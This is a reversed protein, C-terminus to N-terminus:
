EVIEIEGSEATTKRHKKAEIEEERKRKKAEKTGINRAMKLRCGVNGGEYYFSTRGNALLNFEVIEDNFIRPYHEYEVIGSPVGKMRLHHGISGQTGILEDAYIKKAIFWSERAGKVWEGKKYTRPTDFDIHFQGMESGMIEWGYKKKFADVLERLLDQRIHMSDTDTYFIGPSYQPYQEELDEGLAMVRGIIRRAMALVNSGFINFSHSMDRCYVTATIKDGECLEFSHLRYMNAKFWKKWYNYEEWRGTNKNFRKKMIDLTIKMKDSAKLVSKGYISNMMIKAVNQIPHEVGKGHNAKRFEFLNKISDRVEFHRPGEWVIAMDWKFEADQFDVLNYLDIANVWTDVEGCYNKYENLGTKKDKICLLPFHRAKKTYLWTLHICGDTYPKKEKNEDDEPACFDRLFDKHDREGNLFRPIGESVWLLYMASPYLSVADYDQLYDDLGKAEYHWKENDRCMVRGGRITQQILYRLMAKPFVVKHKSIWGDETKDFLVTKLFYDYSLSSATRYRLLDQSFPPNGHIGECGEAKMLNKMNNMIGVLIRVDQCCYYEGYIMWNVFYKETTITTEERIAQDGEIREEVQHETKVQKVGFESEYVDFGDSRTFIKRGNKRLDEMITEAFAEYNPDDRFYELEVISDGGQSYKAFEDSLFSYTYSKYPFAEKRITKKEEETLYSNGASKLTSQFIPYADWFDFFVKQGGYRYFGTCSYLRGEKEIKDVDHLYPLIFTLDYKLNFFYIRAAPSKRSTKSTSVEGCIADLFDTACDLGWLKIFDKSIENEQTFGGEKVYYGKGCILFPKHYKEDTTAEFDAFYVVRPPAKPENYEPKDYDEETFEYGDKLNEKILSQVKKLDWHLMSDFSYCQFEKAMEYVNYPYLLGDDKLMEFLKILCVAKKGINITLYKMWHEEWYMLSVVRTSPPANKEKKTDKRILIYDKGRINQRKITYVDVMYRHKFLIPLFQKISVGRATIKKSRELEKYCDKSVQDKLAYLICPVSYIENDIGREGENEEKLPENYQTFWPIQLEKEFFTKDAINRLFVGSPKNTKELEETKLGYRMFRGRRARRVRDDVQFFIRSLADREETTLDKNWQEGNEEFPIYTGIKDLVWLHTDSALMAPIDSLQEPNSTRYYEWANKPDGVMLRMNMFDNYDYKHVTLYPAGEMNLLDRLYYVIFLDDSKFNREKILDALKVSFRNLNRARKADNEDYIQTLYKTLGTKEIDTEIDIGEFRVSKNSKRPRIFEAERSPLPSEQEEEVFTIPIGEPENEVVVPSKERQERVINGALEEERLPGRYGQPLYHIYPVRIDGEDETEIDEQNPSNEESYDNVEASDVLPQASPIRQSDGYIANVEEALAALNAEEETNYFTAM